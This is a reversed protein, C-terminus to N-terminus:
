IQGLDAIRKEVAKAFAEVEDPAYEAARFADRIQEPSLQALLQGIWHVDDRPIRRGIWRMHLRMFFDPPYFVDFITPLSPTAFDVYKATVNVVFRSSSYFHLDGDTGARKLTVGTSGFSAGLDSVM